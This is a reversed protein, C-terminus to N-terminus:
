ADKIYKDNNEVFKLYKNFTVYRLTRYTKKTLKEPYSPRKNTVVHGQDLTNIMAHVIIGYQLIKQRESTHKMRSLTHTVPTVWKAIIGDPNEVLKYFNIFSITELGNNREKIMLESIARQTIRDVLRCHRSQLCNIFTQYKKGRKDEAIAVSLGQRRVIEIDAWLKALLYFLSIYDNNENPNEPLDKMNKFDERALSLLKGVLEDASKLLQDLHGDVFRKATETRAYKSKIEQYLIDLVKVFLGGGIAATILQNLDAM